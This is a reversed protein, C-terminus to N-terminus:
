GLDARVIAQWAANTATNLATTEAQWLNGFSLWVFKFNAKFGQVHWMRDGGQLECSSHTHIYIYEVCSTNFRLMALGM